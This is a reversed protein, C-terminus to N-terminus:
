ATAERLGRSPAPCSAAGLSRRALTKDAFSKQSTYPLFRPVIKLPSFGVMELGELMGKHTFSLRHDFFDFITVINAILPM